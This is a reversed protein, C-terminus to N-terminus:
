AAEEPGDQRVGMVIVVNNNNLVLLVPHTAATRRLAQWDLRAVEAQFGFEPAIAVLQSLPLHDGELLHRRRVTSLEAYVGNQAGLRFLCSLGTEVSARSPAGDRFEVLDM